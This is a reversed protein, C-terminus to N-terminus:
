SLKWAPILSHFKFFFSICIHLITYIFLTTSYTFLWMIFSEQLFIALLSMGVPFPVLIIMWMPAKLKETLAGLFVVSFGIILSQWIIYNNLILLSGLFYTLSTLFGAIVFDVYYRM